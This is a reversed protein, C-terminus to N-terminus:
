NLLPLSPFLGLHVSLLRLHHITLELGGCVIGLTYRDKKEM